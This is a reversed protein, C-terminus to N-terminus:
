RGIAEFYQARATEAEAHFKSSKMRESFEGLANIAKVLAAEARLRDSGELAKLPKRQAVVLSFAAYGLEGVEQLVYGNAHATLDSDGADVAERYDCVASRASTHMPYISALRDLLDGREAMERQYEALHKRRLQSIVDFAHDAEVNFWEGRRHHDALAKHAARELPEALYFPVRIDHHIVLEDPCGIQLDILRKAAIDASGIKVPNKTSGIIYVSRAGLSKL